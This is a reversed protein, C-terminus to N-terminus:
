RGLLADRDSAGADVWCIQRRDWRGRDHRGGLGVRRARLIGRIRSRIPWSHLWWAATSWSIPAASSAPGRGPSSNSQPLSTTHRELGGPQVRAVMGGMFEGNPGALEANGMPTSIIGPSISNVRAQRRGWALAASRVRLQNARKALM